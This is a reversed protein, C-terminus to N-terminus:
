SKFFHKFIRLNMILLINGLKIVPTIKLMIMNVIGYLYNIIRKQM